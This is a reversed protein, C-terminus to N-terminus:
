SGVEEVSLVPQGIERITGFRHCQCELILGPHIHEPDLVVDGVTLALGTAGSRFETIEGSPSVTITGGDEFTIKRVM